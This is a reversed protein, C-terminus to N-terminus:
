LLLDLWQESDLVRWTFTVSSLSMPYPSNKGQTLLATKKVM